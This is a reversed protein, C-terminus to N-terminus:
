IEKNGFARKRRIEFLHRRIFVVSLAALSLAFCYNEVIRRRINCLREMDSM